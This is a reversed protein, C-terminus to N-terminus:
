GAKAADEAPGFVRDQVPLISTDDEANMDMEAAFHRASDRPVPTSADGHHIRTRRDSLLRSWYHDLHILDLLRRDGQLRRDMTDIIDM